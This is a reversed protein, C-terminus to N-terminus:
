RFTSFEIRLHAGISVLKLSFLTVTIPSIKKSQQQSSEACSENGCDNEKLDSPVENISIAGKLIIKFHM